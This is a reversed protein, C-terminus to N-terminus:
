GNRRQKFAQFTTPIFIARRAILVKFSGLIGEFTQNKLVDLYVARTLSCTYLLVYAKKEEKSKSLYTFPGAFNLGVIQFPRDRVTRDAPLNGPKPRSFAIAHFRKCGNCRHIASKTMQRLRPIWYDKRVDAMTFGVGGHLTKKHAHQILKESFVDNTPLYIPYDGDIRGM